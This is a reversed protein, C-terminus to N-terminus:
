WRSERLDLVTESEALTSALLALDPGMPLLAETLCESPVASDDCTGVADFVSQPLWRPPMRYFGRDIGEPRWRLAYQAIERHYEALKLRVKPSRILDIRGSAILEDYTGRSYDPTAHRGARVFWPVWEGADSVALGTGAIRELLRDIAEINRGLRGVASQNEVGISGCTKSSGNWTSTNGSAIAGRM